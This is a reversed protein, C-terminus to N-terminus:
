TTKMNKMCNGELCHGLSIDTNTYGFTSKLIGKTIYDLFDHIGNVDVGLQAGGTVEARLIIFLPNNLCLSFTLLDKKREVEHPRKRSPGAETKSILCM